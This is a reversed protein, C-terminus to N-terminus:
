TLSLLLYHVLVCVLLYIVGLIFIRYGRTKYRVADVIYAYMIYIHGIIILAYGPLTIMSAWGMSTWVLYIEMSAVIVLVVTGVLGIKFYSIGDGITLRRIVKKIRKM